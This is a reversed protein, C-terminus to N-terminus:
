ISPRLCNHILFLKISLLFFILATKKEIWIQILHELNAPFIQTGGQITLGTGGCQLGQEKLWQTFNKLDIKGSFEDALICFFNSRMPSPSAIFYLGPKTRILEMAIDKLEDSRKNKLTIYLFPLQNINKVNSIWQPIQLNILEKKYEKSEAQMVRLQEKQKKIADLIGESRVKFEQGLSKVIAFNQQFLALAGPGTVAVLRRNGASLASVETIKFSGIDGTASVHTGGCLEASFGPVRVVRVKHKAM